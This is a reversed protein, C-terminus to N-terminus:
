ICVLLIKQIGSPSVTYGMSSNSSLFNDGAIFSHNDSEVTIDSILQNPLKEISKVPIFLSTSKDIINELFLEINYDYLNPSSIKRGNEYSRRIDSIKNIRVDYKKAIQSNSNGSDIDKRVKEVFEIHNKVIIDKYKLYEIVKGSNVTKYYAYRYGITDYYKILNEQTDAIKFAFRYRNEEYLIPDQFKVGINFYKLLTVCQNFFLEMSDYYKSNISQSTEACVFNYSNRNKLKNWIIQCGDGGQFGSLFERKVSDSGNMIWDPIKNRSTETKKGFSIGLAIFFSPLEGNHSVCWTHYISGDYESFSEKPTCREIGLFEVDNEFYLSDLETGFDFQCQGTFGGNKKDYINISGDTCLFGYIRSIVYLKSNDNYLPLLGINELKKIHLEILSDKIFGTLKTRMQESSLILEKKAIVNSMHIPNMLIGIKTKSLDMKEVPCWGDNTMFNHNGTAIIERGSITTIKYIDNETPRVYQHIVKTNSTQMTDPNFTIVEDGIKIDKIAKRSGDILLVNTNPDLCQYINRPSQSHDSFPIGNSMVGMMMAPCIECYNARFKTLENQDMAIISNEAECNDIYVIQENEVFDSWCIKDKENINLTNKENVTLVPRIFRGEDSFIKIVNELENFTFSITKDILGNKRHQHLEKLFEFPDKTIGILAGNVFIKPFVNKGEYDNIFVFNKCDEIIEKVVVTPIRKTVKTLLSLNLVIGISQGEPTENPCLYMIQSQHTQRIKANKGEKGIPIVVRRLHSLTSGYNMRALVQSVGTRIYSNKQVGWNGTCNSVVFGGGLFTKCFEVNTVDYVVQKKDNRIDVLKLSFCPLETSERITAYDGEFIHLAGMDNIFDKADPVGFKEQLYKLESSRDNERRKSIDRESSLSYYNNLVYEKEILQNRAIELAKKITMKKYNEKLKNVTNIIFSHQKKISEEMFWYSSAINLKYSKHICYRFGIFKNFDGNSPLHLRYYYRDKPGSSPRYPGNLYTNNIGVKKLLNQIKVLVDKLVDLNKEQTTWSFKVNDICTRQGERMDLRPCHGDGGFLGGLFERIVSKPCSDDLLFLPICRKQTVKRGIIMGDISKLIHTLKNTIKVYYISGWNETEVNSITPNENTDMVLKYDEIFSNVDFLTGLYIIGQNKKINPIYGDCMMYGIIRMLALTKNREERTFISWTQKEGNVCTELTWKNGLDESLNDTPFEIGYIIRSNIPIKIAEVLETTKDEKLVLIKHDPTCSLIKGNEFTLKITDKVGQVALGGHKASILGKGNWGLVKEKENNLELIQEIPVSLGNSMTILTGAALCFAHKLGMTISTTRLIISMVDPRQKKKELQGQINKVYRKFLTRFLDCCLVGAMEVRKNIYNDRDDEKRLGSITDLLKSVMYGLYYTKEKITSTIGMHPLLENEVIQSAYEERKEEKIVHISYQGIYRLADNQTEIFKSDRVIYKLYKANVINNNGIINIIEEDSTYGLAKFVVGVPIVEKINPLSFVIDRNEEGGIKVQLLVSHGTEESMSRVECVYKYKDGPKQAIVIPLNYVGRLQGVLVREKGKIIFYGGTDYDCEGEKVRESKTLYRLNCKESRLMIPTRGINVRKHVITEPEEGEMEIYETINVFIPSDYNLDKIRAEYPYLNRLKRNKEDMIQPTPIYVEGFTVRYKLDKQNIVIDSEQVVRPIGNKLYDDFTQIQHSVFGETEFYDRLINWVYNESLKEHTSLTEM